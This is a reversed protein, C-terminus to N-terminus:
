KNTICLILVGGHTNKVNKLYYSHYWFACRMVFIWFNIFNLIKSKQCKLVKVWYSVLWIDWTGSKFHHDVFTVKLVFVLYINTTTKSDLIHIITQFFFNFNIAFSPRRTSCVIKLTLLFKIVPFLRSKFATKTRLINLNKNQSKPSTSFHNILFILNIEYNIVDCGLFCVIAIQLLLSM